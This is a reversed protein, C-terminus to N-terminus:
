SVAMTDLVVKDFEKEYAKVAEDGNTKVDDLIKKVSANLRETEIHPRATISKWENRQPYKYTKM